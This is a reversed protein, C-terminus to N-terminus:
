KGIMKGNDWILHKKLLDSLNITLEEICCVTMLFLDQVATGTFRQNFFHLATFLGKYARFLGKTVGTLLKNPLNSAM